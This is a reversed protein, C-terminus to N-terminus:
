VDEHENKEKRQVYERIAQVMEWNLSREERESIAQLRKKLPEPLRLTLRSEQKNQM